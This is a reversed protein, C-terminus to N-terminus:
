STLPILSPKKSSTVNLILNSVVPCLLLSITIYAYSVVHAFTRFNVRDLFRQFLVQHPSLPPGYPWLVSCPILLGLLIKLPNTTNQKKWKMYGKETNSHPRRYLWCKGAYYEQFHPMEAYQKQSYLMIVNNSWSKWDM